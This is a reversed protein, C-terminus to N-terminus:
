RILDTRGRRPERERPELKATATAPKKDRMYAISLDSGEHARRVARTLDAPSSVPTDGIATIM